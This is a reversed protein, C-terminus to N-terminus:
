FARQVASHPTELPDEREWCTGSRAPIPTQEESVKEEGCPHNFPTRFPGPSTFPQSHSSHPWPSVHDKKTDQEVYQGELLHSPSHLTLSSMNGYGQGVPPCVSLSLSQPTLPKPPQETLTKTDGSCGCHQKGPATPEQSRISAPAPSLAHGHEMKRWGPMAHADGGASTQAVKSSGAGWCYKVDEGTISPKRLLTEHPIKEFAKPCDWYIIDLSKGKDM